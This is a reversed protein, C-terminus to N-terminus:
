NRESFFVKVIPENYDSQLVITEGTYNEELYNLSKENDPSMIIYFPRNIITEQIPVSQFDFIQRKTKLAYQIGKVEPQGWDGWCCDLLYIKTEKPLADIEQAIIKGFPVNFNPLGMSYRYFYSHYNFTTVVVVILCFLMKAINKDIKNLLYFIKKFGFASIILIFPIACISRTASPVESPNALTLVSPLQLTFFPVLIFVTKKKTKKSFLLWGLGLLFALGSIPDLQPQRSPNVRFIVDGKVHIMLLQNKFNNIITKHANRIHVEERAFIQGPHALYQKPNQSFDLIMALCIILFSFLTILYKKIYIKKALAQFVILFLITPVVAFFATYSYIGMGLCCGLLLYNIKQKKQRFTLLLFYFSLATLPIALINRFGIRSSTVPWKSVAFLFSCILGTRKDFLEKTLFYIPFVAIAGILASYVKLTIYTNGFIIAFPAAMIFFLGENHNHSYLVKIEGSIVEQINELNKAMDGFIEGPIQDIKYLRFFVTIFFIVFLAIKTQYPKIASILKKM